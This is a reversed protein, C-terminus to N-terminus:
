RPAAAHQCYRQVRPDRQWVTYESSPPGPRTCVAGAAILWAREPMGRPSPMAAAEKVRALAREPAGNLLEWTADDIAGDRAALFARTQLDYAAEHDALARLQRELVVDRWVLLAVVPIMALIAVRAM